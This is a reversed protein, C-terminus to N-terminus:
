VSNCDVQCTCRYSTRVSLLSSLVMMVTELLEPKRTTFLAVAFGIAALLIVSSAILDIPQVCRIMNGLTTVDAECRYDTLLLMYVQLFLAVAVGLGVLMRAVFALVLVPRELGTFLTITGARLQM